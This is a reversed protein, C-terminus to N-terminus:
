ITSRSIVNRFAWRDICHRWSDSEFSLERDPLETHHLWLYHQVIFIYDLLFVKLKQFFFCNWVTVKCLHSWQPIYMALREINLQEYRYLILGNLSSKKSVACHCLLRIIRNPWTSATISYKMVKDLVVPQPALNDGFVVGWGGVTGGGPAPPVSHLGGLHALGNLPRRHQRQWGRGGRPLGIAMLVTAPLGWILRGKCAPARPFVPSGGPSPWPRASCAAGPSPLRGRRRSSVRPFGGPAAARGALVCARGPLHPVVGLDPHGHVDRRHAGLGLLLRVVWLLGPLATQHAARGGGPQLLSHVHARRHGGPRGPHGAGRGRGGRPHGGAEGQQLGLRARGRHAGHQQRLAERGAPGPPTVTVCHRCARVAGPTLARRTNLFILLYLLKTHCQCKVQTRTWDGALKPEPIDPYFAKKVRHQPIFSYM